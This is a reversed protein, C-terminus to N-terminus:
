GLHHEGRAEGTHLELDGHAVIEAGVFWRAHADLGHTDVPLSAVFSEDGVFAHIRRHVDGLSRRHLHLTPRLEVACQPHRPRGLGVHLRACEAQKQVCGGSTLDHEVFVSAVGRDFDPRFGRPEINRETRRREVHDVVDAGVEVGTAETAVTAELLAIPPLVVLRGLHEGPTAPGHEQLLFVEFRDPHEVFTEEQIVFVGIERPTASKLTPAVDVFRLREHPM